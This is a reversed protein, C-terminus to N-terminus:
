PQYASMPVYFSCIVDANPAGGSNELTGSLYGEVHDPALARIGFVVGDCAGCRWSGQPVAVGEGAVPSVTGDPTAVGLPPAVHYVGVAIPAIGDGFRDAVLECDAGSQASQAHVRLTSQTVRGTVPDRATSLQASSGPDPASPGFHLGNITLELTPGGFGYAGADASAAGRPFCGAHGVVAVWV